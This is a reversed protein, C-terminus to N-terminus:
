SNSLRDNLSCEDQFEKAVKYYAREHEQLEMFKKEFGQYQEHLLTLDQSAKGSNQSINIIAEKVRGLFAEKDKKKKSGKYGTQFTSLLDVQLGILRRVELLSNYNNFFKKNEELKLNILDYLEAFRRQYQVMETKSPTNELRRQLIAVQTNKDALMVRASQFRQSVDEYTKDVKEYWDEVDESEAEVDLEQLQSIEVACSEKFLRREEQIANRKETLADLEELLKANLKKREAESNREINEITQALQQLMNKLEELETSLATMGTKHNQNDDTLVTIEGTKLAIQKQLNAVEREHREKELLLKQLPEDKKAELYSTYAENIEESHDTVLKAVNQRSVKIESETVEEKQEQETEEEYEEQTTPFAFGGAGASGSTSFFAGTGSTSGEQLGQAFQQYSINTEGFELLCSYIRMPDNLLRTTKTKYQRKPLFKNILDRYNHEQELEFKAEYAILAQKRTVGTMQEQFGILNKVLWQIVPFIKTFDLGQIQHPVLSHPCGMAQLSAVVKEGSKIKQGMTMDENFEINVETNAASISWALGGLIKDFPKINQLRAKFYGAALLMNNIQESIEQTTDEEQTTASPNAVLGGAFM